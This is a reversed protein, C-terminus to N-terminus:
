PNFSLNGRKILSELDAVDAALQKGFDAPSMAGPYTVGERDLFEKTSPQSMAKDIASNLKAIIEPPTGARVFVSTNSSQDYNPLSGAESITPVDPLLPSRTKGALAIPKLKGAKISPYSQTLSAFIGDIDGAMVATQSPAGGQFPVHVIDVGEELKIKELALHYSSGVGNSGFNIKGPNKKAYAIFERYNNAPFDPRVVMAVASSAVFSVPALDKIPDFKLSAKSAKAIVLGAHATFLLTYGDPHSNAVVGAAINGGAGPKNEIVVTQGISKTLQEALRRAVNDVGGGPPFAVVMTIPQSPYNSQAYATGAALALGSLAIACLGRACTGAKSM